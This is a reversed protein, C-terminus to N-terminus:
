NYFDDGFLDDDVIQQEQQAPEGFLDDDQTPQQQVPQQPTAEPMEEPMEEPLQEPMEEPKDEQTEEPTATEETEREVAIEEPISLLNEKTVKLPAFTKEYFEQYDNYSFKTGLLKQNSQSIVIARCSDLMPQMEEEALLQHAYQWCEDYNLFGSVTMQRVGQDYNTQIDFNRVLFNTFNYKALQYLLQNNDIANEKYALLFVFDTNRETSLTDTDTSDKDALAVDRREWIDGLNFQAGHLTRGQQVGKVIMGAIEAVESQPHNRVVQEMNDTAGKSDGQNLKRMGDIFIFKPRHEGLPFREQAYQNNTQVELLRNDKFADYTAAYISDEMHKGYLANEVFYPDNLLTTYQSQPWEAQLHSLCANASAQDGERAYILYLHYWAKDMDPYDPYQTTLRNLNKKALKLNDLKDKFIVGANFLGDKIINDSEAKQEDTFPIQALYYERNHPDNAPDEAKKEESEKQAEQALAASATDQPEDQDLSVVTRNNRQWNDTNERKGWLKQFTQKGQTVATQNYFYWEGKTQQTTNTTTKKAQTNGQANQKALQKDAAEEQAKRKEEKEKKKLEEIVRDITKLREAEPMLALAQLSDQLYIADTHPVLEDLVKSRQSLQEYDDREKDLLGIAEGYCRKADSYKERAWYLNGLSLLLVGKETGSRTAKENGKEYAAIAKATDRQMLHVNGIAYYVQDLYDANKDSSAMRRLRALTQKANGKAMVETQAIRANFELEYPPNQAVVKKFAKYALDRQGLKAYLQGLLFWERAKQKKRKEHKICRRLYPIAQQYEQKHLYYDAYAYDLNKQTPGVISDRKLNRLVDEADYLWDLETYCRSLWTRAVGYIAPQTQYLRSMYSFTAAAEDFEGKLFQSKGMMLWAKWLFPNYEKRGLWEIDKATKKKNRNWEPRRKISHQKIAKESKEIAKDFNAKGLERSKKNGVTYLPLLNTYDDKNGTEKELCGDSYAVNGNYYTNYKATFSHWFRSKATNKQTSCATAVAIIIAAAATTRIAESIIRM